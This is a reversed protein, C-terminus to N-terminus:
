REVDYFARHRRAGVNRVGIEIIAALLAHSIEGRSRSRAVEKAGHRVAMGRGCRHLVRDVVDHGRMEVTLIVAFGGDVFEHRGYFDRLRAVCRKFPARVPIWGAGGAIEILITM